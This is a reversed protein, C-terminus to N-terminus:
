EHSYEQVAKVINRIDVSSPCATICRGCGCCALRDEHLEPYYVFKHGIRNRLRMAKASRPNHGSAEATFNFSMCNDWSRLRKGKEESGEDTINFCYCTPCLYTCIGCSLCKGSHKEWFALDTFCLDFKKRVESLDMPSGMTEIAQGAKAKAKVAKEGAPSSPALALLEEGGSTLAEAVFGDDLPYLMIDSGKSDDPAGGVSNCFCTPRPRNCAITITLTNERRAAYYADRIRENNYVQDFILLGRAGCPRTGFIVAKGSPLTETTEVGVSGDENGSGRTYTLLTENQPFVIEKPSTTPMTDLEVRLGSDCARYVVADGEHVPAFVTREEAMRKIWPDIDKRLIFINNM